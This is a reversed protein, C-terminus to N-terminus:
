AGKRGEWQRPSGVWFQGRVFCLSSVCVRGEKGTVKPSPGASASDTNGRTVPSRIVLLKRGELKQPQRPLRGM